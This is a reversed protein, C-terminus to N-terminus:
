WQLWRWLGFRPAGDRTRDNGGWKEYRNKKTTAKSFSFFIGAEEFSEVRRLLRRGARTFRSVGSHARPQQFSVSGDPKSRQSPNM